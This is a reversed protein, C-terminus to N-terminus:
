YWSGGDWLRNAAAQIDNSDVDDSCDIVTSSNSDDVSVDIDHEPYLTELKAQLAKAFKDADGDELNDGMTQSTQTVNIFKRKSM